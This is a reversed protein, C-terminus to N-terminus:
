DTEYGHFRPLPPLSMLNVCKRYKHVFYMVQQHMPTSSGHGFKVAFAKLLEPLVPYIRALDDEDFGPPLTSFLEEAFGLIYDGIKPDRLSSTDSYLTRTDFDEEADPMDRDFELGENIDELSGPQIEHRLKLAVVGVSGYGSDTFNEGDRTHLPSPGRTM